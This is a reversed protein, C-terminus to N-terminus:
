IFGLRRYMGASASSDTLGRGGAMGVTEREEAAGDPGGIEALSCKLGTYILDFERQVEEM